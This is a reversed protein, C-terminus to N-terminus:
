FIGPLTKVAIKIKRKKLNYTSEWFDSTAIKLVSGITKIQM